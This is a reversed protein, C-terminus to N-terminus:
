IKSPRTIDQKNQCPLFIDDYQLVTKKKKKVFIMKAVIVSKSVYAPGSELLVIKDRYNCTDNANNILKTNCYVM